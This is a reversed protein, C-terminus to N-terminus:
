IYLNDLYFVLYIQLSFNKLLNSLEKKFSTNNKSEIYIKELNNIAPILTEPVYKGGFKDFHGNNDPKKYTM